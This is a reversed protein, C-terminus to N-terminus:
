IEKSIKRWPIRDMQIDGLLGLLKVNIGTEEFSNAASVSYVYFEFSCLNWKNYAAIFPEEL